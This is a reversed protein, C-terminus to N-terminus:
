LSYLFLENILLNCIPKKGILNCWKESEMCEANPNSECMKATRAKDIHERKTDKM